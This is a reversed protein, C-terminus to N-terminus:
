FIISFSLSPLNNKEQRQVERCYFIRWLGLVAIRQVFFGSVLEISLLSFPSVYRLGRRELANTPLSAVAELVNKECKEKM